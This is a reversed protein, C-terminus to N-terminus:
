FTLFRYYYYNIIIIIIRLLSFLLTSKKIYCVTYNLSSNRHLTSRMLCLIKMSSKTMAELEIPFFSRLSGTTALIKMCMNQM